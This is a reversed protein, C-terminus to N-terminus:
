RHPRAKRRADSLARNSRAEGGAYAVVSDSLAAVSVQGRERWSMCASNQNRLWLVPDVVAKVVRSGMTIRRREQVLDALDNIAGWIIPIRVFRQAEKLSLDMLSNQDDKDKAIFAAVAYAREYDNQGHDLLAAAISIRRYRKEAACGALSIVIDWIAENRLAQRDEATIDSRSLYCSFTESAGCCALEGTKRTRAKSYVTIHDFGCGYYCFAIAHGAEHLAVRRPIINNAAGTCDNRRSTGSRRLCTM